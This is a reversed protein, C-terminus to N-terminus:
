DAKNELDAAERARNLREDIEQVLRRIKYVPDQELAAKRQEEREAWTQQTTMTEIASALWGVKRYDTECFAFIPRLSEDIAEAIIEIEEPSHIDLNIYWLLPTLDKEFSDVAKRMREAVEPSVYRLYGLNVAMRLESVAAVARVLDINDLMRRGGSSREM